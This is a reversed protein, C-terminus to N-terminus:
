GTVSMEAAIRGRAALIQMCANAAEKGKLKFHEFFFRHHDAGDHYNHPTLVAALLSKEGRGSFM